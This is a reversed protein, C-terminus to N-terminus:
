CLPAAGAVAPETEQQSLAKDLLAELKQPTLRAYPQGDFMAAPSQACLGLCYVAELTVAGGKSTAGFECGLTHRAHQALAEAGRAQCAEARCVRLVHHGAPESRFDPYFSIVGHVEARSINFGEAIAPVLQSPLYGLYDQLEHLAPLLGGALAANREIIQRLEAMQGASFAAEGVDKSPDEKGVSRNSSSSVPMRM